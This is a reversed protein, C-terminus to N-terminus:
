DATQKEAAAIEANISDVISDVMSDLESEKDASLHSNITLEDSLVTMQKLEKDLFERILDGAKPAWTGNEIVAFTRKQLNLAKMDMLYNHILPYIGLNYTVSAVVVHSYKFTESILWSVHTNSVDRVKVDKVGRERLKAALAVAASETNGYM